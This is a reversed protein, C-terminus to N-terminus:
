AAERRLINLERAAKGPRTEETLMWLEIRDREIFLLRFSRVQDLTQEDSTEAEELYLLDAGLDEDLPDLGGGCARGRGAEPHGREAGAFIAEM